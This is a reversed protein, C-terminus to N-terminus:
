VFAQINAVAHTLSGMVLVVAVVLGALLGTTYRDTDSCTFM